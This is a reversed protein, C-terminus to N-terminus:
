RYVREDTVLADMRADHGEHPVARVVQSEMCICIRAAGSGALYRDYFGRGYGLRHLGPSACVAPVLVADPEAPACSEKPEMTGLRGRELDALGAVQRYRLSDGDIRPLCLRVGASLLDQMIGQTRIESGIPYYAGVRSAASFEAVGPLARRVSESAMAIMDDSAADRRELLAKRLAAKREDPM